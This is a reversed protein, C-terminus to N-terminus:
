QHTLDLFDMTGSCLHITYLSVIKCIYAM